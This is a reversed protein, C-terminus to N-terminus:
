PNEAAPIGWDSGWSNIGWWYKVTYNGERVVGGHYVHRYPVLGEGWGVLVVAHGQTDPNGDLDRHMFIGGDRYYADAAEARANVADLGM